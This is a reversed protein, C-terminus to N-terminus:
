VAELDGIVDWVNTSVQIISVTSHQKRLKLTEPTNLTVGVGAALTVQGAGIQRIHIPTSLPFAVSSNPPVTVTTAAANNMRLLAGLDTLVLTRATTTDTVTPAPAVFPGWVGGFFIVMRDLNQLWLRWGEIPPAYIWATGTWIAVKNGHTAWVGTAGTAPVLYRDGAAPSGPPTTVVNSIVNAQVLADLLLWNNDVGAKWGDDGLNWDFNIGVNNLATQPM